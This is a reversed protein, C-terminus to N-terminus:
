ETTVTISGAGHTGSGVDSFSLVVSIDTEAVLEYTGTSLNAVAVNNGDVTIRGTYGPFNAEITFVILTGIPIEITAASTYETDGVGVIAFGSSSGTIKVIVLDEAFEIERAVGNVLALGSEIERLVGGILVTGGEIERSTSGILTNHDAM